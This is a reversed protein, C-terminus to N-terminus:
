TRVGPAESASVQAGQRRLVRDAEREYGQESRCLAAFQEALFDLLHRVAPLKAVPPLM